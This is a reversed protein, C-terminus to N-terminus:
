NGPEGNWSEDTIGTLWFVTM